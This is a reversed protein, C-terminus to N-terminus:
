GAAIDAVTVDVPRSAVGRVAARVRAALAPLPTGPDAVVSVAVRGDREAVGSVKRGPLYTTVEGFEGGDLGAVGTVATVAAFVRDVFTQGAQDTATPSSAAAPGSTSSGAQPTM